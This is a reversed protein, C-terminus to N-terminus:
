RTSQERTKITIEAVPVVVENKITEKIDLVPKISAPDILSYTTIVVSEDKKVFYHLEKTETDFSAQFPDISSALSGDLTAKIEGNSLRLVIIQINGTDINKQEYVLYANDSTWIHNPFISEKHSIKTLPLPERVSNESLSVLQYSMGSIGENTKQEQRTIKWLGDPSISETIDEEIVSVASMISADSVSDSKSAITEALQTESKIESALALKKETREKELKTLVRKKELDSHTKHLLAFAEDLKGEKMLARSEMVPDNIVEEAIVTEKEDSADITALIGIESEAKVEQQIDSESEKELALQLEVQQIKEEIVINRTEEDISDDHFLQTMIRNKEESVIVTEEQVQSVVQELVETSGTDKKLEELIISNTQLTTEFNSAVILAKGPRDQSLKQTEEKAKKTHKEFNAVAEKSKIEDFSGETVLIKVEELRREARQTAFSAREESDKKSLSQIEESVHVKFPYLFDGPLSEESAYSLGSGLGLVLVLVMAVLRTGFSLVSRFTFQRSLPSVVPMRSVISSWVVAHEKQSLRLSRLSTIEKVINNETHAHQNTDKKM